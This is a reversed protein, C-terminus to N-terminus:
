EVELTRYIAVGVVLGVLLLYGLGLWLNTEEVGGTYAADFVVKMPFHGPLYPAVAHSEEVLPSQALFIDLLPGFLLVYVGALRGFVLGILAGIGGYELGITVIAVVFWGIREPVHTVSLVATSILTAIVASVAILGLRALLLEAVNAGVLHLRADADRSSQMMFLGAVGGVLATALPAMLVATVSKVSVQMVGSGPVTIPMPSDPMVWAFVLIFYGPLFVLLVLLLPTRAYELLGMEFITRTDSM